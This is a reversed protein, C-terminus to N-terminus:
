WERPQSQPSHGPAHAAQRASRNGFDVGAWIGNREDNAIAFSACLAVIPCRSCLGSAAERDDANDSFFAAAYKTCAVPRGADALKDLAESLTRWAPVADPKIGLPAYATM